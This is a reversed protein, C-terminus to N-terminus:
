EPMPPCISKTRPAAAIDGPPSPRDDGEEARQRAAWDRMRPRLEVGPAPTTVLRPGRGSPPSRARPRRGGRSSKAPVPWLSSMPM